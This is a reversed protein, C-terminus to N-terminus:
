DQHEDAEVGGGYLIGAVMRRFVDKDLPKTVYGDAGAARVREQDGKMAYATVVVVPVGRLEPDTKFRGLLELGDIDPLQLDLLILDPRFSALQDLAREASVATRVDYWPSSLLLTFLKLNGPNDDVVLIRRREAGTM